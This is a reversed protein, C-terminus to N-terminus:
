PGGGGNPDFPFTTLTQPDIAHVPQDPAIITGTAFRFQVLALAYALQAQVRNTLSNTLRDEVTLVDVVSGIGVRYREREGEIAAQFFEVSERSKGLRLVGNRLAETATVVASTINRSVQVAQL